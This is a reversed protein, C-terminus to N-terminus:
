RLLSRVKDAYRQTVLATSAPNMVWAKCDASPIWYARTIIDGHRYGALANDELQKPTLAPPKNRQNSCRANKFVSENSVAKQYHFQLTSVGKAINEYWDWATLATTPVQLLGIHSGSACDEAPWLAALGAGVPNLPIAVVRPPPECHSLRDGSFQGKGTGATYTSEVTAIGTLINKTMGSYSQTGAETLKADVATVPPNQGVIYFTASAKSSRGASDVIDAVVDARGGIGVPTVFNVSGNLPSTLTFPGKRTAALGKSTQYYIHITWNVTGSCGPSNARLDVTASRYNAAENLSYYVGENTMVIECASGTVRAKGGNSRNTQGPGQAFGLGTVGRSLVTVVRDGPAADSDITFNAAIQTGTPSTTLGSWRVKGDDPSIELSPNVGFNEGELVVSVTTGPDWVSPSISDIRPTSDSAREIDNTAGLFVVDTWSVRHYSVGPGQYQGVPAGGGGGPGVTPAMSSFGLPDSVVYGGYVNYPILMEVKMTVYHASILEYIDGDPSTHSTHAEAKTPDRTIGSEPDHDIPYDDNGKYLAAWVGAGYKYNKACYNVETYSYGTARGSTVDTTIESLGTAVAVCGAAPDDKPPAPSGVVITIVATSEVQGANAQIPLYYTGPATTRFVSITLVANSGPNVAFSSFEGAVTAPWLAPDYSLIVQSTFGNGPVISLTSTDGEGARIMNAPSTASLTFTGSVTGGGSFNAVVSRPAIMSVTQPSVTGSLSGGFGLFTQGSGPTATVQVATGAPYYGDVSYPTVQVSGSGTVATTL